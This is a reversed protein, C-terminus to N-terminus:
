EAPLPINLGPPKDQEPKPARGNFLLGIVYNRKVMHDHLLIVVATVIAVLLAFEVVPPQDVFILLTGGYYVLCHHFLYMSQARGIWHKRLDSPYNFYRHFFQLGAFVSLWCVINQAYQLMAEQWFDGDNPPYPQLALGALALFIVPARFHFVAAQLAASSYMLLGFLFYPLSEALKMPSQLGPVLVDYAGPLRSTVGSLVLSAGAILLVLALFQATTTSVSAVTDAFRRSISYFSNKQPLVSVIALLIFSYIILSVLFWLHLQWQGNRWLELFAPSTLFHAFSLEGGRDQYRLFNEVVNFTLGVSLTPIVLRKLREAWVMRVNLHTIMHALVFGSIVFFAPTVMLHLSNILWSFFELRQENATIHPRNTAYVTAAHLMLALLMLVARFTDVDNFRSQSQKSQIMDENSIKKSQVSRM